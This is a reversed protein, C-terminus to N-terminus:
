SGEKFHDHQFVKLNFDTFRNRATEKALRYVRCPSVCDDTVGTGPTRVGEGSTWLGIHIHHVYM